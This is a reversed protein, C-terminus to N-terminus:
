IKKLYRLKKFAIDNNSVVHATHQFTAIEDGQGFQSPQPYTELRNCIVVPIKYTM